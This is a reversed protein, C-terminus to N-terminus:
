VLNWPMSTAGGSGFDSFDHMLLTVKETPSYNWLSKHFRFSNEFCRALHPVLYSEDSLYVLRLDHTELSKFQANLLPPFAVLACACAASVCLRMLRIRPTM